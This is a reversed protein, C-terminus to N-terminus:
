TTFWIYGVFTVGLGAMMSFSSLIIGSLSVTLASIVLLVAGIIAATSGLVMSTGVAVFMAFLYQRDSLFPRRPRSPLADRLRDLREM